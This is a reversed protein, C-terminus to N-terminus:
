THPINLFNFIPKLDTFELDSMNEIQQPCVAISFIGASKASRWDVPTDGIMWVDSSPNMKLQELAFLVPAPHPKDFAADGSGVVAVFFSSFGLHEIEHVILKKDKNSVIGMPIDHAYLYEILERAYPLLTLDSLHNGKLYLHFDKIADEWDDPFHKPFADRISEHFLNKTQQLSWPEMKRKNFVACMGQHLLPWTDVITNDWDFLVAKPVSTLSAAALSVSTVQNNIPESARISGFEMKMTIAGILFVKFVACCTIRLYM